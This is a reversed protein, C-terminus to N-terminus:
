REGEVIVMPMDIALESGLAAYGAIDIWNDEHLPNNAVRAAKFLVMMAAVDHPEIPMSLYVSWHAAIRAFSNEAAGHTAARDKTIVAKATDLLQGRNM